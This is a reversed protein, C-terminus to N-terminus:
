ARGVLRGSINAIFADLSVPLDSMTWNATGEYWPLEDPSPVTPDADAAVLAQLWRDRGGLVVAYPLISSIQAYATQKPIQNVPETQLTMSLAHLGHLLDVGAPTRRPMAQAVAIFGVALAVLALGLLGLHTFIVLLVLAVVAVGLGIWGVRDFLHRTQDPRRSFWGRDVVEEYLDDQVQAIVKEVPGGISSVVAPDGDAPAIADLLTQEFPRLGDASELRRFTWDLPHGPKDPSLEVIQVHGRAALDLLTATIDIPDVHEDVVTGVHGPRINDAVEFEVTGKGTPVFSAVITPDKSTAINRARLRWLLLLLGAGVILVLLATVLPGTTTSFARDLTWRDRVDQDVPIMTSPATFSLVVQSGAAINADQFSPNWSDHTGGGWMQCPELGAPSGSKCDVSLISGSAGIVPVNITGSATAVPMALGQLVPWAVSTIATGDSAVGGSTSAGTVTYGITLPTTGLQSTDVTIVQVDGSTTVVPKLDTGNATATVDTITFNYYTYDDGKQTTLLRQVFQNPAAGSFAIETSIKISGDAKGADDTAMQGTVTFTDIDSDAWARPASAFLGAGITLAATAAVAVLRAHKTKTM